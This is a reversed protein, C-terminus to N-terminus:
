WNKAYIWAKKYMPASALEARTKEEDAQWIAVDQEDFERVGTLLDVDKPSIFKTKYWFKWGLLIAFFIPLGIYNTLFTRWNFTFLFSNWGKFFVVLSTFVVAIYSSYPQLPSQWPLSERSMGQAKMAKMFQIHSILICIWTLGGFMTVSAVLYSFTKPGGSALNIFALGCFLSSVSLAVYPVGRKDVRRFVKPAKGDLALGYLTRAAIYLDSNAASICFVLIAANIVHPLVRIRARIIAVVFPSAAASTGKKNASLLEPANSPVVMGVLLAGIVYFFAIRFFTKKIASPVTKRPNAAEGVTVGVLETGTYAFLATVMTSWFGLFMGKSGSTGPYSRFALGDQFNRFGIRDGTPSGGLDIILLLLILGTMTIIKVLSLWFEVEGFWKPGGFNLAIILVTIIGIWIGGSLTSNWYAIVLAAANTNNAVVVGYKFLYNYGTALGFEDGVFRSAHGAFGRPHPMYTSMEGLASMVSACCFGMLTYAILISAPGGNALGGGTGIILGTGLAGGIAIMSIQRGKLARHLQREEPKQADPFSSTKSVGDQEYGKVESASSSAKEQTYPSLESQIQDVAM